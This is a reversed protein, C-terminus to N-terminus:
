IDRRRLVIRLSSVREAVAQSVALASEVGAVVDQLEQEDLGDILHLAIDVERRQGPGASVACIRSDQQPLTQLVAMVDPDEWPPIWARGQALAWLVGRGLVLPRARAADVVLVTCEEAVAAQAAQEIVMPVPRAQPNWATMASVCTFVPLALTGDPGSLTVMSMEAANDARHGDATVEEETSVALVPVLVRQGALTQVVGVAAEDDGADFRALAEAVQPNIEGRDGAFPNTVHGRGAWPTGATDTM